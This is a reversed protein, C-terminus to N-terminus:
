ENKPGLWECNYGVAGEEQSPTEQSSSVGQEVVQQNKISINKAKAFEAMARQRTFCKQWVHGSKGCPCDPKKDTKM